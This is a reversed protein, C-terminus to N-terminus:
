GIAGGLIGLSWGVMKSVRERRRVRMARIPDAQMEADFRRLLIRPLWVEYIVVLSGILLAFAVFPGTASHTAHLGASIGAAGLITTVIAALKLRSLAQREEEDFATRELSRLGLVVGLVGGAAGLGAGSFVVAIKALPGIAKAGAAGIAGASAGAPAGVSLASAVGAVFAGTPSTNVLDRGLRNLLEGRLLLRARSLRPSVAAESMDM